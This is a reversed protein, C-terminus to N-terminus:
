FMRDNLSPMTSARKQKLLSWQDRDPLRSKMSSIMRKQRAGALKM